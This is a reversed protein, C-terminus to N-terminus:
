VCLVICQMIIPAWRRSTPRGFGIKKYTKFCEITYNRTCVKSQRGYKTISVFPVLAITLATGFIVGAILGLFNQQWPLNGMGFLLGSIVLLKLM